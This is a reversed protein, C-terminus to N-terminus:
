RAQTKSCSREAAEASKRHQQRGNVTMRPSKNPYMGQPKLRQPTSRRNINASLQKSSMSAHKLTGPIARESLRTLGAAVHGPVKCVSRLGLVRRDTSPTRTTAARETRLVNRAPPVREAANQESRVVRIALRPLTLLPKMCANPRPRVKAIRRKWGRPRPSPTSTPHTQRAQQMTTCGLLAPTWKRSM